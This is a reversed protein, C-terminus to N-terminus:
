KLTLDLATQLSVSYSLFPFFLPPLAAVVPVWLAWLGEEGEDRFVCVCVWMDPQKSVSHPLCGSPSPSLSFVSQPPFSFSVLTIKCLSFCFDVPHANVQVSLSSHHICCVLNPSLGSLCLMWIPINYLHWAPDHDAAKSIYCWIQVCVTCFLYFRMMATKLDPLKGELTVCLCLLAHSFVESCNGAPNVETSFPSTFTFWCKRRTSRVHVVAVGPRDSSM